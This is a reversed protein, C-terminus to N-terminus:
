WLSPPFVYSASEIMDGTGLFKDLKKIHGFKTEDYNLNLEKYMEIIEKKFEDYSLMFIIEEKLM